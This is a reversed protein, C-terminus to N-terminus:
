YGPSTTPMPSTLRYPSPLAARPTSTMVRTADDANSAYNVVVSAAAAGFRRAIGAGIGKSAGTV